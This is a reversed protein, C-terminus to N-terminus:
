AATMRPRPLNRGPLVAPRPFVVRGALRKLGSLNTCWVRINWTM